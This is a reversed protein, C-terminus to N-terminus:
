RSSECVLVNPALAIAVIGKGIAANDCDRKRCTSSSALFKIISNFVMIVGQAEVVKM